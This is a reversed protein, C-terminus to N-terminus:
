LLKLLAELSSLPIINKYQLNETNAKSGAVYIKQESYGESITGFITKVEEKTLPNTLYTFFDHNDFNEKLDLINQTPVKAGLYITKHGAKKIIYNAFLIALDHEEFQNLFLVFSKHNPILPEDVGDIAAYLKQKVLHSAFHEQLPIVREVTWLLGVKHLFPYIVELITKYFGLNQVALDFLQHFKAEDLAMMANMLENVFAAHAEQQQLAQNIQQNIVEDTLQSIKSIKSGYDILTKVNLLKRVDDNSYFRINTDTRSPSFIAYRKEWIRLTHAKIGSLRELDKISYRQM